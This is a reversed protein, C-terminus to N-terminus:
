GDPGGRRSRICARVKGVAKQWLRQLGACLVRAGRAPGGIALAAGRGYVGPGYLARLVAHMYLGLTTALVGRVILRGLTGAPHNASV